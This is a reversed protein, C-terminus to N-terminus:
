VYCDNQNQFIFEKGGCFQRFYLLPLRLRTYKDAVVNYIFHLFDYSYKVVKLFNYNRFFRVIVM